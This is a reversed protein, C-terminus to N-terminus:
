GPLPIAALVSDPDLRRKVQALKSGNAGYAHAIQEAACDPLLNAYGGPLAATSLTAKLTQVWTSHVAEDGSEPIWSGYILATFHPKRMGFATADPAVATAVGHCHHLIVSSLDSSRAEFAAILTSITSKSLTDFWCTAVEYARGAPLKGDTLALVDAPNILGAKANIPDGKSALDEFACLGQELGATWILSVVLMPKGTPGVVMAVSGFLAAPASQMAREYCELAVAADNWPFVVSGSYLAEPAHVRLRANVLVGFNGGGGRIAWFLQPQNHEDCFILDGNPLLIEAAILQDCGLGYRTMLPGYGGGLLFGAMGVSGENGIVTVLGYDSLFTNLQSTTVGGEISVELADADIEIANMASIDLVVSKDRFARGNWDRGGSRVCIPLQQALVVSWALKLMVSTHCRVILLPSTVKAANWGRTENRRFYEDSLIECGLDRLTSSLEALQSPSTQSTM